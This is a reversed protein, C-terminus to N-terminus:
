EGGNANIPNSWEENERVIRWFPCNEHDGEVGEPVWNQNGQTCSQYFQRSDAAIGVQIPLTQNGTACSQVVYQAFM